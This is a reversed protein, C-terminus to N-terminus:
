FEIEFCGADPKTADRMKGDLDRDFGPVPAAYKNAVSRLTDLRYNDKNINLFITDSNDVNLCPTCHDFFDPYQNAKLM